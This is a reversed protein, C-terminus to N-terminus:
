KKYRNKQAISMKRKTEDTHKYGLSRTNGILSKSLHEKHENTFPKRKQSRKTESIKKKSEESHIFNKHSESMKKKTEDTHKYGLCNKNGKRCKSLKRKTEKSAKQGLRSGAVKCINYKPNLEDLYQQEKKILNNKNTIIEITEFSLNELGYKNYVNQLIPSEHMNRQLKSKHSSFRNALNIASGIYFDKTIKNAIKYIGSNM